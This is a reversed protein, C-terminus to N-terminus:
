VACKPAANGQSVSYITMSDTELAHYLVAVLVSPFPISCVMCSMARFTNKPSRVLHVFNSKPLALLKPRTASAAEWKPLMIDWQKANLTPFWPVPTAL